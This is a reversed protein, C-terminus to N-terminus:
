WIARVHIMQSTKHIPSPIASPTVRACGPVLDRPIAFEVEQRAVNRAALALVQEFPREGGISGGAAHDDHQSALLRALRQAVVIASEDRFPELRTDLLNCRLHVPRHATRGARVGPRLRQDRPNAAKLVALGARKQDTRISLRREHRHVQGGIEVNMAVKGHDVPDLGQDVLRSSSPATGAPRRTASVPLATSPRSILRASAVLARAMWFQVIPRTM